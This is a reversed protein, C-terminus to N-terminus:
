CDREAKWTRETGTKLYAGEHIRSSQIDAELEESLASQQLYETSVGKSGPSKQVLQLWFGMGWWDGM